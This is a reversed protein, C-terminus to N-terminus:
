EFLERKRDGGARWLASSCALSPKAQFLAPLFQPHETTVSQASEVDLAEILGALLEEGLPNPTSRFLRAILWNAAKPNEKYLNAGRTRLSLDNSDFSRFGETTALALLAEQEAYSVLWKTFAGEGLLRRKLGKGSTPEPYLREIVSVVDALTMSADIAEFVTMLSVFDRREGLADSMDWLFERVASGTHGAADAAALIVWAPHDVATSNVLIPQGAGQGATDLLIERTAPAPVCQIDLPRRGFSRASLSGTCFTLAMRLAPWKQSWLAFIVDEFESSAQSAFVLPSDDHGYHGAILCQMISLDASESLRSGTNSKLADTLPMPRSYIGVTRRASPRKFLYRLPSLSALDAMAARPIVITHTWVCGPRPMEPAYWTKALAYADLSALPYGTVYEEFGTRVNSGSLDSMRLLLRSLDDPVAISGELLRHGESYGHLLQHLETEKHRLPSDAEIADVM